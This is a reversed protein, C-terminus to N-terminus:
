GRALRRPSLIGVAVVLGALAVPGALYVYFIDVTWGPGGNLQYAVATGGVILGGIAAFAAATRPSRELLLLAAIFPVAALGLMPAGVGVTDIVVGIAALTSTIRLARTRDM